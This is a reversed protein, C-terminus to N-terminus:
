RQHLTKKTVRINNPIDLWRGRNTEVNQYIKKVNKRYHRVNLYIYIRHIISNNKSYKTMKILPRNNIVVFAIRVSTIVRSAYVDTYMKRFYMTNLNLYLGRYRTFVWLLNNWKTEAQGSVWRAENWWFWNLRANELMTWLEDKADKYTRLENVRQKDVHFTDISNQVRQLCVQRVGCANQRQYGSRRKGEM